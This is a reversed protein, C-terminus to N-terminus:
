LREACSDIGPRSDQTRERDKCIEALQEDCEEVYSTLRRAKIMLADERTHLIELLESLKNQLKGASRSEKVEKQILSDSEHTCLELQEELRRVEANHEDEIVASREALRTQEEQKKETREENIKRKVLNIDQDKRKMNDGENKLKIEEESQL